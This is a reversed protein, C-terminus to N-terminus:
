RKKLFFVPVISVAAFVAAWWFVKAFASFMNAGSAALGHSLVIALVATGFAGGIQQFIRTATTGQPIDKKDLGDYVGTTVPIMVLGLGAGRIL